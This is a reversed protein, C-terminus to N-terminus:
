LHETGIYNHGLERAEEVALELVRKARPSFPVGEEGTSGGRGMAKQLQSQLQQASLGLHALVRAAVGQEDAAISLLMHETGVVPHGLRLALQQSRMLVQKARQTYNEFM